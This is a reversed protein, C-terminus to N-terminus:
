LQLVLRRDCQEDLRGAVGDKYEAGSSARTASAQGM